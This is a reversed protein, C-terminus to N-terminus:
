ASIMSNEFKKNCSLSLRESFLIKHPKEIIKNQFSNHRKLTLFDKQQVLLAKQQVM